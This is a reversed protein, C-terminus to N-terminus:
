VTVSPAMVVLEGKLWVFLQPALRKDPALQVTITVNEGVDDPVVLPESFIAPPPAVGRETGSVPEVVYRENLGFGSVMEVAYPVEDDAVTVTFLKLLLRVTSIVPTLVPSGNEAVLPQPLM